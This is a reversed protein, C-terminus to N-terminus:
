RRPRGELDFLLFYLGAYVKPDISFGARMRESVWATARPLPVRHLTIDESGDGGGPGERRLGSALVFSMMENSMGSSSPGTMVFEWERAVYGTEELLERQAAELLHEDSSEHLDGVLGAPMEITRANIPIRYQEVFLVEQDETLALIIVAGGPNTREAYEWGSRQRLRLYRGKFLIESDTM